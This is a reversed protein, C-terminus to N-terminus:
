AREQEDNPERWMRWVPPGGGPLRLEEIVEFGHRAFFDRSRPRGTELYSPTGDRDCRELGPRILAEAIGARRAEPAVGLVSLYWHPESPHGADLAGFGRLTRPATARFVRAMLALMGLSERTGLKWQNPPDWLAAGTRDATTVCDHGPRLYLEALLYAFFREMRELRDRSDPPLYWRWAPCTDFSRALVAALASADDSTAALVEVTPESTGARIM